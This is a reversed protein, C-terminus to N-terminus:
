YKVCSPKGFTPTAVGDRASSLTSPEIKAPFRLLLLASGRSITARNAGFGKPGSERREGEIGGEDLDSATSSNWSDVYTLCWIFPAGGRVSPGPICCRQLKSHEISGFTRPIFDFRCSFFGSLPAFCMLDWPLLVRCLGYQVNLSKM